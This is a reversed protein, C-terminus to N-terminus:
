DSATTRTDISDIRQLNELKDPKEVQEVSEETSSVEIRYMEQVEQQTNTGTDVVSAYLTGENNMKWVIDEPRQGTDKSILDSLVTDVKDSDEVQRPRTEEISM